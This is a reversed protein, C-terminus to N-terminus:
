KIWKPYNEIFDRIFGALFYNDIKGEEKPIYRIESM